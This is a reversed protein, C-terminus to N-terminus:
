FGLVRSALREDDVRLRGLDIDEAGHTHGATEAIQPPEERDVPRTPQVVDISGGVRCVQSVAQKVSCCFPIMHYSWIAHIM